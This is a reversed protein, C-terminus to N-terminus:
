LTWDTLAIYSKLNERRYRHLIDDEPIILRAVRTPVSTESSNIAEMILTVLILSSPVVNATVLLQLMSFKYALVIAPLGRGSIRCLYIQKLDAPTLSPM